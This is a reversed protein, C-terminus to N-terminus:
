RLPLTVFFRTAGNASTATISGGYQEAIQKCLYLGLGSGQGGPKTTFFPEFIRPMVDPAIDPGDNEFTIIAKGDEHTAAIRLNGKGGMAQIANLLLNAWVQSLEEADAPVVLDDAIAMQVSVGQRLYNAYLKLAGEVSQKLNIPQRNTDANRNGLMKLAYVVKATKEVSAGINAFGLRVQNLRAAQQVIEAHRPTLLLPLMATADTVGCQLLAQALSESNAFQAGELKAQLDRRLQREERSSMEALHTLENQTTLIRFLAVEAPVLSQLFDPLGAVLGPVLQDMTKSTARIAGLPTNIEHAVNGVLHGLAAMKESAILQEQTARLEQMASLLQGNTRAIEDRQQQLLENARRKAQYARWGVFALAFGMLLVVALGWLVLRQRNLELNQIQQNKTLTEIQTQKKTLEFNSQLSLLKQNNEEGALQDKIQLYLSQYKYAEAFNRTEFHIDSTVKYAAKLEDKAGVAQATTQARLAYNLGAAFLGQRKYLSALNVLTLAQGRKDDNRKKIALSKLYLRLAQSYQQQNEYVEGLNNLSNATGIQDNLLQKITLSQEFYAAAEGYRGENKYVGGINNLAAAIGLQDKRNEYLTQATKFHRLAETRNGLAGFVLGINNETNAINLSDATAEYIQQAKLYRDLAAPYNGQFYDIIGLHRMAHAYGRRYESKLALWWAQEAYQRAKEPQENRYTACLENLIDVRQSDTAATELARALSDAQAQHRTAAHQALAANGLSTALLALLLQLCLYIRQARPPTM